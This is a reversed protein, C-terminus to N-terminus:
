IGYKSIMYSVLTVQDLRTKCTKFRGIYESFIGWLEASSYLVEGAEKETAGGDRPGGQSSGAPRPRDKSKGDPVAGPLPPFEAPTFAPVAPSQKEAKRAPPKPKSAQQRRRIFDARKPCSRDTAEHAGSCNACRKPEAEQVKCEDTKHPGGCNNCRGKLHCNRTGHGLQLCNRCQTVNPRKNRYAEWRIITSAVVKMASLKKLNTYGKPFVVIYPTEDVTSKEKRKIIHVELADLKLDRKLLYKVEDPKLEDPFGRLVVRHNRESRRDHTYFEVKKKKLLEQLKDFDKVSFCTVKTGFRTLKYIPKFGLKCSEVIAVLKYFDTTNKVVLPPQKQKGASQGPPPVAPADGGGAPSANNNNKNDALPSFKNNNLLTKEVKEGEIGIGTVESSKKRKRNGRVPRFDEEESSEEVEM